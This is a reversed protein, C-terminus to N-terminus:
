RSIYLYIVIRKHVYFSLTLLSSENELTDKKIAHVELKALSSYQDEFSTDIISPAGHRNFLTIGLYRNSCIMDHRSIVHQVGGGSVCM